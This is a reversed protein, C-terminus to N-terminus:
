IRFCIIFYIEVKDLTSRIENYTKSNSTIAQYERVINVIDNTNLRITRRGNNNEIIKAMKAVELINKTQIKKSKLLIM